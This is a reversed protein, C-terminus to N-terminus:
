EEFRYGKSHVTIIHKPANPNEEIKQRLRVIYNDITRTTPVNTMEYHWIKQLIEDRTIVRGKNDILYKLLELERVSFDLPQNDQLAKMATFDFKIGRIQYYIIDHQKTQYQTRKLVAQVRAILEKVGFPKTVYDDAGLNFGKMKDQERGKATLLIVPVFQNRERLQKLIEYGNLKPLMLDLVILDMNGDLAKQLGEDGTRATTVEFGQNRLADELGLLISEDDEVILIGPMDTDEKDVNELLFNL